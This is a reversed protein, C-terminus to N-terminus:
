DHDWGAAHALNHFVGGSDLPRVNAPLEFAALITDLDSEALKRLRDDIDDPLNPILKAAEPHKRLYAGLHRVVTQVRGQLREPDPEGTPHLGVLRWQPDFQGALRAGAPDFFEMAGLPASETDDHGRLVNITPYVHAWTDDHAIAVIRDTGVGDADDM